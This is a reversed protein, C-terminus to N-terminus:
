TNERLEALIERIEAQRAMARYRESDKNFANGDILDNLGDLEKNLQEVDEPGDELNAGDLEGRPFLHGLADIFQDEPFMAFGVSLETKEDFLSLQVRRVFQDKNGIVMRSITLCLLNGAATKSPRLTAPNIGPKHKPM